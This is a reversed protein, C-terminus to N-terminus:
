SINDRCLMCSCLPHISHWGNETCHLGSIVLLLNPWINEISQFYLFWKKGKLITCSQESISSITFSYDSLIFVKVAVSYSNVPTGLLPKAPKQLIWSCLSRNCISKGERLGIDTVGVKRSAKVSEKCRSLSPYCLVLLALTPNPFWVKNRQAWLAQDYCSTAKGLNM